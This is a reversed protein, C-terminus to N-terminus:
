PTTRPGRPNIGLGKLKRYLHTREMGSRRALESMSGGVAELHHRFYAQEFAERAERLPQEFDSIEPQPIHRDDNDIEGIAIKLEPLEIDEENASILLRQVVNRLERVNGPWLQNRLHNLSAMSFRRFPLQWQEIISHVFFEVLDPVDEPHERLPPVILPVVNLRYYLDKRFTGRRVKTEIDQNTTAIIRLDMDVRDDGGLRFFHKKELANVLTAQIELDLDGVEDLVLTGGNAKEFHGTTVVRGTERGFLEVAINETPIAALNAEIYPGASRISNQHIARSTVGKGAGDEGSVLVWSLTAAVRKINERLTQIVPSHGILTSSSGFQDRLLSNELRLRRAELAKQVTVLLRATSLPKELFDDAGARLAEVATDVTGHGSIMIVPPLVTNEAWRKLLTIGDIDPMWIDLLVLDPPSTRFATEALNGDGALTVRYGEDGLVDAVLRRIDPEDDVVLIQKASM